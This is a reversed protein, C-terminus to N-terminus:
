LGSLCAAFLRKGPEYSIGFRRFFRCFIPISSITLWVLGELKIDFIFALPILLILNFFIALGGIRSVAM